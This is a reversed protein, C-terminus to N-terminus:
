HLTTNETNCKNKQINKNQLSFRHSGGERSGDMVTALTLYVDLPRVTLIKIIIVQIDFFQNFININM